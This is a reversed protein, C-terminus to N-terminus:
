YSLAGGPEHLLWNGLDHHFYAALKEIGVTGLDSAILM